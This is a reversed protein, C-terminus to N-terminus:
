AGPRDIERNAANLRPFIGQVNQTPELKAQAIKGTSLQDNCATGRKQVVVSILVQEVRFKCDRSNGIAHNESTRHGVSVHRRKEPKRIGKDKWGHLFSETQHHELSQSCLCRYNDRADCRKGFIERVFIAAEGIRMVRARDGTGHEARNGGFSAGIGNARVVFDRRLHTPIYGRGPMERDVIFVQAELSLM